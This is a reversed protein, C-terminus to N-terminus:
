VIVRVPQGFVILCTAGRSRVVPRLMRLNIHKRHLEVYARRFCFWDHSGAPGKRGSGDLYSSGDQRMRFFPAGSELDHGFVESHRKNSPMEPNGGAGFGSSIM